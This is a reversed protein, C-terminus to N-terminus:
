TGKNKGLLKIQEFLLKKKKALSLTPNQKVKENDIKQNEYTEELYEKILEIIEEM